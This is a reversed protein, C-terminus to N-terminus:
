QMNCRAHWGGQGATGLSHRSNAFGNREVISSIRALGLRLAVSTANERAHGAESACTLSPPHASMDEAQGASDARSLARDCLTKAFPPERHDVGVLECAFDYRFATCAECFDHLCESRVNQLVVAAQISRRDGLEHKGVLCGAGPEIRDCMRSDAIQSGAPNGSVRGIAFREDAVFRRQEDFGPHRVCQARQHHHRSWFGHLDRACIGTSSLTLSASKMISLVPEM